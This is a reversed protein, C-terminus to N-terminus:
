WNVDTTLLQQWIFRNYDRLKSNKISTGIKWIIGCVVAVAFSVGITRLTTKYVFGRLEPKKLDGFGM